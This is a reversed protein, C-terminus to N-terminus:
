RASGGPALQWQQAQAQYQLLQAQMASPPQNLFGAAQLAAAHQHLVQQLWGLRQLTRPDCSQGHLDDLVDTLHAVWGECRYATAPDCALATGAKSRWDQLTQLPKAQAGRQALQAHLLQMAALGLAQFQTFQAVAAALGWTTETDLLAAFVCRAGLREVLHHQPCSLGDGASNFQTLPDFRYQYGFDFLWVQQGDDLLNGPSWDWEFHGALHLHVGTNFLQRLVRADSLDPPGGDVWPTVLLRHRLSGYHAHLIGPLAAGADRATALEQHRLLENVFATEGDLNRVRSETRAVKVALHQGHLRLEYVDGTLGSAVHRHVGTSSPTLAALAEPPCPLRSADGISLECGSALWALAAQQRQEDLTPM